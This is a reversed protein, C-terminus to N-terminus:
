LVKSDLIGLRSFCYMVTEDHDIVTYLILNLHEGEKGSSYIETCLM